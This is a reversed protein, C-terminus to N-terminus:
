SLALAFILSAPSTSDACSLDCRGDLGALILEALAHSLHRVVGLDSADIGLQHVLRRTLINVKHPPIAGILERRHLLAQVPGALCLCPPCKSCGIDPTTPRSSGESNCAPRSARHACAGGDSALVTSKTIVELINPSRPRPTALSKEVIINMDGRLWTRCRRRTYRTAPPCRRLGPWHAGRLFHNYPIRTDDGPLIGGGHEGTRGPGQSTHHTTVTEYENPNSSSKTTPPRPASPIALPSNSLCRQSRPRPIM